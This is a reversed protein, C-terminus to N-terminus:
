LGRLRARTTNAKGQHSFALPLQQMAAGDPQIRETRHLSLYLNDAKSFPVYTQVEAQQTGNGSSSGAAKRPPCVALAM